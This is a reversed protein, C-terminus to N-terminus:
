VRFSTSIFVPPDVVGPYITLGLGWGWVVASFCDSSGALSGCLHLGEGADVLPKKEATVSMDLHCRGCDTALVATVM